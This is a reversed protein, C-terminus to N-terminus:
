KIGLLKQILRFTNIDKCEGRFTPETYYDLVLSPDKIILTIKNTNFNWGLM